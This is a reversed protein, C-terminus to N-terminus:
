PHLSKEAHESCILNEPLNKILNFYSLQKNIMNAMTATPSATRSACPINMRDFVAINIDSSKVRENLLPFSQCLCHRESAPIEISLLM